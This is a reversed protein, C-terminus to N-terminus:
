ASERELRKAETLAALHAMQSNRYAKLATMQWVLTGNHRITIVPHWLRATDHEIHTAVSLSIPKM